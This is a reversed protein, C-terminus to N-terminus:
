GGLNRSGTVKGERGNALLLVAEEFGFRIVAADLRPLARMRLACGPVAQAMAQLATAPVYALNLTMRAAAPSAM